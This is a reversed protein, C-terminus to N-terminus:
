ERAREETREPQPHAERGPDKDAEEPDREVAVMDQVQLNAGAERPDGEDRPVIQRM